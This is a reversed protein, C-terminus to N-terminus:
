RYVFVADSLSGVALDPYSNKDLDMNSALSYGFMSVGPMGPLIQFSTSIGASSVRIRDLLTFREVNKGGYRDLQRLISDLRPDTISSFKGLVTIIMQLEWPLIQCGFYFCNKFVEELVLQCYCLRRQRVM